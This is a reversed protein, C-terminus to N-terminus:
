FVDKVKLLDWIDLSPDGDVLLIDAEKGPELTGIMNGLGICDAASKTGSIIADMNNMGWEAHGIIEYQFGGIPYNAWSSDSGSVM